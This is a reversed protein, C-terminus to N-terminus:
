RQLQHHPSRLIMDAAGIFDAYIKRIIAFFEVPSSQVSRSIDFSSYTRKLFDFVLNYIEATVDAILAKYDEKYSIKSPFVEITIILEKRGDITFVLDSFGIDNKFNIIGSLMRGERGVPTIANRIDYNEHWFSVTHGANPEVFLEYSQQEFFLPTTEVLTLYTKEACSSAGTGANGFLSLSFEEQSKVRVTAEKEDHHVYPYDTSSLPRKLTITLSQTQLFLLLDDSGTHRSDM